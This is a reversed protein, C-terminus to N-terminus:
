ILNTILAFCDIVYLEVLMNTDGEEFIFRDKRASLAWMESRELWESALYARFSESVRHNSLIENHTKIFKTHDKTKVLSKIKNWVAPFETIVIHSRMVRLVHWLCLYIQSQPYVNRLAAIQAQDCDTMLIKPAVAPSAAKVWALFYQISHTTSKSSAM